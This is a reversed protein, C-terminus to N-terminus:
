AAERSGLTRAELENRIQQILPAFRPSDKTLCWDLKEELQEDTLDPLPTGKLRGFPWVALRSLSPEPSPDRDVDDAQHPQSAAEGDDDEPAVGVFASLSYRRLYTIASGVGQPDAKAIPARATSAIYQGSCHLLITTVSVCGTAPDYGPTQVVSLGNGTLAARCADWVSALDAYRSRYHPNVSNRAATGITAQAKAVAAALQDIPGVVGQNIAGRTSSVGPQTVRPSDGDQGRNDYNDNDNTM